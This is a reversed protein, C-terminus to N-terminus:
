GHGGVWPKVAADSGRAATEVSMFHDCFMTTGIYPKADVSLDAEAAGTTNAALARACQGQFGCDNHRATFGKAPRCRTEHRALHIFKM